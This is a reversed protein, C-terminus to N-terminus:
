CISMEVKREFAGQDLHRRLALFGAFPTVVMTVKLYAM